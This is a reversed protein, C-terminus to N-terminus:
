IRARRFKEETLKLWQEYGSPTRLPGIRKSFIFKSSFALIASFILWLLWVLAHVHWKGSILSLLFCVTGIGTVIPLMLLLALTIEWQRMMSGSLSTLALALATVPLSATVLIAVLAFSLSPQLFIGLWACFAYPITAKLCFWFRPFWWGFKWQEASLPALVFSEVVRKRGLLWLSAKGDHLVIVVFASIAGALGALSPLRILLGEAFAVFDQEPFILSCLWGSLVLFNAVVGITMMTHLVKDRSQQRLQLTVLPNAFRQCLRKELRALWGWVPHNVTLWERRKEQPQVQPLKSTRELAWLLGAWALQVIPMMSWYPLSIRIGQFWSASIQQQLSTPILTLPLLWGHFGALLSIPQFFLALPAILWVLFVLWWTLPMREAMVVKRWWNGSLSHTIYHLTGLLAGIALVSAIKSIAVGEAWGAFGCVSFMLGNAVLVEENAWRIPMRPAEDGKASTLSLFEMSFLLRVLVLSFAVKAAFDPPFWYAWMLGCAFITAFLWARHSWWLVKVQSPYFRPELSWAWTTFSIFSLLLGGVIVLSWTPVSWAFFGVPLTLLLPLHSWMAFVSFGRLTNYINVPSLLLGWLFPGAGEPVMALLIVVAVDMLVTSWPIGSLNSAAAYFPLCLVAIYAQIFLPYVSIALVILIPPTGTLLLQPLTDKRWFQRYRRYVVTVGYTEAAFLHAWVTIEYLAIARTLFSFNLFEMLLGAATFALWVFGLIMGLHLFFQKMNRRQQRWMVAFFPNDVPSFVFRLADLFTRRRM